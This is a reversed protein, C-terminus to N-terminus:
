QFRRGVEIRTVTGRTFRLPEKAQLYPERSARQHGRYSHLTYRHTTPNSDHLWSGSTGTELNHARQRFFRSVTRLRTLPRLCRGSLRFAPVTVNVGSSAHCTASTSARSRPGLTSPTASSASIRSMTRRNSRKSHLGKAILASSIASARRGADRLARRADLESAGESDM